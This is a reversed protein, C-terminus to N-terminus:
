RSPPASSVEGVSVGFPFNEFPVKLATVTYLWEGADAGAAEVVLTKDTEETWEDGNPAVLKFRLRAGEGAFTLAFRLRGPKTSQYKRTVTAEGSSHSEVNRKAPSFGGKLMTDDAVSEEKANVAAFVLHRLLKEEQGTNLAENHFSTFIVTGQDVPFKVLLPTTLKEGITQAFEGRMFVTVDDGSFRAPMWGPLTFNLPITSAGLVDRLGPDVIEATVTQPARGTGASFIRSRLERVRRLAQQKEARTKQERSKSRTRMATQIKKDWDELAEAIAAVDAEDAPPNIGKLEDRVMRITNDRAGSLGGEFLNSFELFAVYVNLKDQAAQSLSAKRLTEAVTGVGAAPAAAKIWAKEALELEPLIALNPGTRPRREPFAISVLGYRFDSAYLTGGRTVFRRLTQGIKEAIDTRLTGTSTGEREGAIGSTSQFWEDPALGCTLFLIDINELASPKTLDNNSVPKYRFGEGLKDLLKGMDDYKLATVGLRPPGSKARVVTPVVKFEVKGSALRKTPEPAPAADEPEGVSLAFPFKPYPLKEATAICEWPGAAADPVEITLTSNGKKERREGTPSVVELKLLGGRDEFALLFKLTGPKAHPYSKKVSPKDETASLLSRTKPSFGGRAMEKNARAEVGAMVTSLVLYHLLETEIEDNDDEHHFSTFLVAGKGYPFKVLLPAGDNTVGATTKVPGRLYVTVDTGGFAAPRWGELKFKLPVEDVSLAGRLEDNVVKARVNQKLGMADATPDIKDPFAAKLTEFQLDSAYLTGGRFVYDRMARALQLVGRASGTREPTTCTLFIADFRSNEARDILKAAEITEYEYGEGLSQLLKGMDDFEGPTVALKLIPKTKPPEPGETIGPDDQVVPAVLGSKDIGFVLLLAVALMAAVSADVGVRTRSEM